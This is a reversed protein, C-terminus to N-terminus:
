IKSRGNCLRLYSRRPGTELGLPVQLVQHVGLSWAGWDEISQTALSPDGAFAAGQSHSAASTKINDYHLRARRQHERASQIAHPLCILLVDDPGRTFAVRESASYLHQTINCLLPVLCSLASVSLFPPHFAPFMQQRCLSGPPLATGPSLSKGTSSCILLRRPFCADEQESPCLV